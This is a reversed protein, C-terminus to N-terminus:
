HYWQLQEGKADYVKTEFNLPWRDCTHIEMTKHDRLFQSPSIGFMSVLMKHFHSSDTFGAEWAADGIPSGNMFRNIAFRIRSWLICKYLSVGTQEKFLARLRSGSLHVRGSLVPLSIADPHSSNIYQEVALVRPDTKSSPSQGTLIGLVQQVISLLNQANPKLMVQQLENLRIHDFFNLDPAAAKVGKLYREKIDKAARTQTDLYIILQTSGNTDLQHPVEERIILNKYSQWNSGDVRCRFQTQTDILVQMTNHSHINTLCNSFFIASVGNWMYFDSRFPSPTVKM